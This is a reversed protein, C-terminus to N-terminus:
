LRDISVKEEDKAKEPAECLSKYIQFGFDRQLMEHFLEAFLFLEFSHEQLTIIITLLACIRCYWVKTAVCVKNENPRYDLLCALSFTRCEFSGGKATRSPHVVIHPMEPLAYRKELVAPDIIETVKTQFFNANNSNDSQFYLNQFLFM